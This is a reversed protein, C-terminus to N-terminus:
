YYITVTRHYPKEKFKRQQGLNWLIWDIEFARLNRGMRKLQLRILEVAWITNARIEIEEPSGPDLLINNDVKHELSPSYQFVGVHRLVQPLKYDAFATLNDIDKFFGWDKGAFAGYLDAAFIQARKYFYIKTDYYEAEDRFSHLNEVLLEVLKLTSNEAAEVLRNAEGNYRSILFAGLENLIRIREEMLQLEGKGGLIQKLTSLNLESLYHADTISIGSEIAKKLSAALAYYGSLTESKYQVEWKEAGPNPWFCFNISDLILLYAVTKHGGDFFHYDYNWSPIEIGDEILKRLFDVLAQKDITVQQIRKTVHRTTKLVKNM